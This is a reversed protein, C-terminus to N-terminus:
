RLDSCFGCFLLLFSWMKSPSTLQDVTNELISQSQDTSPGAAYQIAKITKITKHSGSQNTEPPNCLFLFPIIRLLVKNTEHFHACNILLSIVFFDDHVSSFKNDDIILKLEFHLEANLPVTCCTKMDSTMLRILGSLYDIM